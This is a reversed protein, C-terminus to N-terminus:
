LCDYPLCLQAEGWLLSFKDDENEVNGGFTVVKPYIPRSRLCHCMSSHFCLGYDMYCAQYHLQWSLHLPYPSWPHM